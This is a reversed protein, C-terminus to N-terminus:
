KIPNFHEGRAYRENIYWDRYHVISEELRLISDELYSFMEERDYTIKNNEVNYYVNVAIKFPVGFNDVGLYEEPQYSTLIDKNWYEENDYRNLIDDRLLQRLEKTM